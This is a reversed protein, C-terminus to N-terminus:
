FNKSNKKEIKRFLVVTCVSLNGALLCFVVNKMRKFACHVITKCLSKRSKKEQDRTYAYNDM